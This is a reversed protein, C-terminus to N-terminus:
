SKIEKFFVINQGYANLINVDDVLDVSLSLTIKTMNTYSFSGMSNNEKEREREREGNYTIFYYGKRM